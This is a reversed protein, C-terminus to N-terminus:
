GVSLRNGNGDLVVVSVPIGHRVSETVICFDEFMGVCRQAQEPSAGQLTLKLEVAIDGVRWRGRDNQRLTTTATASLHAVPQRSKQLCFLLSASLCNAVAVTLIRSANPGNDHGLPPPEDLHLETDGQPFRVVFEFDQLREISLSFQHELKKETAM